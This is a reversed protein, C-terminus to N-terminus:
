EYGKNVIGSLIWQILVSQLHESKNENFLSYM